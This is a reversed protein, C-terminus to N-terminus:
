EGEEPSDPTAAADAARCRGARHERRVASARRAALHLAHGTRNSWREVNRRFAVADGQADHLLAMLAEQVSKSPVARISDELKRM